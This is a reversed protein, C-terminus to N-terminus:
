SGSKPDIDPFFTDGEPEANVRTIYIRRTKEFAMRYIEGGGIVM